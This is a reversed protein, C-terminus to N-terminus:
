VGRDPQFGHADAAALSHRHDDFLEVSRRVVSGSSSCCPAARGPGVRGARVSGGWEPASARRGGVDFPPRGASSRTKGGDGLNAASALRLPLGIRADPWSGSPNQASRSTIPRAAHSPGVQALLLVPARCVSCTKGASGGSNATYVEPTVPVGPPM